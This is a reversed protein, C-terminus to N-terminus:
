FPPEDSQPAPAWPDAAPQGQPVAVPQQASPQPASWSPRREQYGAQGNPSQQAPQQASQQAPQQQQQGYGDFVNPASYDVHFQKAPNMGARDPAKDGTYTIKLWGGVDVGTAGARQVAEVIAGYLASPRICWLALKEGNVELRTVVSMKPDGNDWTDLAGTAFDRHQTEAPAEIVKGVVTHGVPVNAWSVSPLKERPAFPNETM